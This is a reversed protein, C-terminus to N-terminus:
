LEPRSPSFRIAPSLLHPVDHRPASLRLTIILEEIASLALVTAAVRIPWATHLVIWLACGIPLLVFSVRALITHYSTLRRFKLWGVIIPTLYAVVVVAVTLREAALPAPWLIGLGILLAACLAVDARSDLAAGHASASHSARALPGDLADTVLSYAAVISFVRPAGLLAAAILVPASALRTHTLRNAWMSMNGHHAVLM